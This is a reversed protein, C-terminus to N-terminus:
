DLSRRALAVAEELSLSQGSSWAETGEIAAVHPEYRRRIGPVMRFGLRDESGVVAGWLPAGAEPRKMRVFVTALGALCYVVSVEDGEVVSLELGEWYCDAARGFQEQSLALDGWSHLNHLLASSRRATRNLTVARAFMEDAANFDRLDSYTDGLEHLTRAQEYSDGLRQYADLNDRFATLAATLEGRERALVAMQGRLWLLGQENGGDDTIELARTWYRRARDPDGQLHYAIVGAAKLARLQLEPPASPIRPEVRELWVAADGPSV